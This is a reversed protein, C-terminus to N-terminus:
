VHVASLYFLARAMIEGALVCVASIVIWTKLAEPRSRATAWAYALAVLPLVLGVIVQALTLGLLSSAILQLSAAAAQTTATSMHILRLGSVVMLAIVLVTGVGAFPQLSAGMSEKEEASRALFSRVALTAGVLLTGLLLASVAFFLITLPTNWAPIARVVAYAMGTSFVLALAALASLIGVVLRWARSVARGRGPLFWLLAYIAALILFLIGFWGERSIWSSGINSLGNVFATPRRLHFVSAILGIILCPLALYAGWKSVEQFRETKRTFDTLEAVVAVSTSGIAAGSFLTLILLWYETGM